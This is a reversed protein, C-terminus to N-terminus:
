SVSTSSEMRRDMGSSPKMAGVRDQSSVVVAQGDRVRAVRDRRELFHLGVALQAVERLGESVEGQDVGSDGEVTLEVASRAAVLRGQDAHGSGGRGATCNAAPRTPHPSM